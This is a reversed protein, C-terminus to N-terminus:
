LGVMMPGDGNHTNTIPMGALFWYCFVGASPIVLSNPAYFWLQRGKEM